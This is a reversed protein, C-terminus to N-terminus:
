VTRNCSLFNALGGSEGVAEIRMSETLKIETAYSFVLSFLFFILRENTQSQLDNQAWPELGYRDESATGALNTEPLVLSEAALVVEVIYVVVVRDVLIATVDTVDAGLVLVADTEVDIVSCM